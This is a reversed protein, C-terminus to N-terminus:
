ELDHAPNDLNGSESLHVPESADTTVDRSQQNVEYISIIPVGKARAVFVPDSSLYKEFRADRVKINGQVLVYDVRDERYYGFYLHKARETFWREAEATLIKGDGFVTVYIKKRRQSSQEVLFRLADVQGTRPHFAGIEYSLQPPPAFPSQYLDWNPYGRYVAKVQGLVLLLFPLRPTKIFRGVACLSLVAIIYIQPAVPIAYRWAQKSSNSLFLLWVFATCSAMVWLQQESDTLTRRVRPIFLLPMLLTSLLVLPPLDVVALTFYGGPVPPIVGHFSQHRVGTLAFVRMYYITLNEFAAPLLSWCLVVFGALAALHDVATLRRQKFLKIALSLAILLLLIVVLPHYSGSGLQEGISYLYRPITRDIGEWQPYPRHHHWLRTYGAVFVILSIFAVWVDSWTIPFEKYIEPWRWRLISKALMFGPVLAICTPKSLICLGFFFGAVMKLLVSGRRIASLYIMITLTTVVAFITDIHAIRSLDIARPGLALLLGVCFAVSRSTWPILLLFLIPPLLSSFLANGLRTATLNDFPAPTGVIAQHVKDYLKAGVQGSMLVTAPFVGPHALHTSYNRSLKRVRRQLVEARMVWHQEDAQMPASEVGLVRPIAAVILLLVVLLLVSKTRRRVSPTAPSSASLPSPM